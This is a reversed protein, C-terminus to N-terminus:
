AAHTSVVSIGSVKIEEPHNQLRRLAHLTETGPDVFMLGARDPESHVVQALVRHHSVTDPQEINFSVTVFSNIPLRVGQTVVGMGGVSLNSLVVSLKRIDTNALEM